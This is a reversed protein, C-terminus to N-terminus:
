VLHTLHTLHALHALELPYNSHLSNDLLEM